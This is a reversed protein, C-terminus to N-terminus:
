SLSPWCIITGKLGFTTGIGSKTMAVITGTRTDRHWSINGYWLFETSKLKYFFHLGVNLQTPM